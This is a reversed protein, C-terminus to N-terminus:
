VISHPPGMLASPTPMPGRTALCYFVTWQLAQPVCGGKHRRMGGGQSVGLTESRRSQSGAHLDNCDADAFLDQGRRADVRLQLLASPYRIGRTDGGQGVHLLRATFFCQVTGDASAAEHWLGARM